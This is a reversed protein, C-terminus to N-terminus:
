LVEQYNQALFLFFLGMVYLSVWLSQETYACIMWGVFTYATILHVWLVLDLTKHKLWEQLVNNDHGKDVLSGWGGKRCQQKCCCHILQLHQIKYFARHM